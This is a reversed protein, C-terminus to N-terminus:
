PAGAGAIVPITFTRAIPEGSMDALVTATVYFIGDRQPVITLRHAVPVGAEPRDRQAPEGGSSVTLGDEAHFVAVLRDIPATPIMELDLEATEGAEPREHLSFKVEVPLDGGKANSVAAVMDSDLAPKVAQQVAAPTSHHLHLWSPLWGARGGPSGCAAVCAVMCALAGRRSGALTRSVFVNM